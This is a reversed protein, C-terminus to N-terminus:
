LRAVALGLVAATTCLALTGLLNFAALTARGEQGLRVSAFSATSFTTFGGCFGTGLVTRWSDQVGDFLVLGTLLGLFLSGAINILLTGLPFAGSRHTSVAGDVYMRATAGLGGGLAVGCVLAASM